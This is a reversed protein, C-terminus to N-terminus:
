RRTSTCQMMEKEGSGYGAQTVWLIHHFHSHTVELALNYFTNSSGNQRKSLERQLFGVEMDDLLKTSLDMYLSVLAGQGIALM